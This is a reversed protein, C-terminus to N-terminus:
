SAVAEREIILNLSVTKCTLETTVMMKHISSTPKLKFLRLLLMVRILKKKVCRKIMKKMILGLHVKKFKYNSILLEMMIHNISMAKSSQSWKKMPWSTSPKHKFIKKTLQLKRMRATEKQRRRVKLYLIIKIRKFRKRTLQHMTSIPKFSPRLSKMWIWTRTMRPDRRIMLKYHNVRLKSLYLYRSIKFIRVVSIM